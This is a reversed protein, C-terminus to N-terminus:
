GDGSSNGCPGLGPRPQDQGCVHREHRWGGHTGNGSRKGLVGQHIRLKLAPTPMRDPKAALEIGFQDRKRTVFAGFAQQRAIWREAQRHVIRPNEGINVRWFVQGLYTCGDFKRGSRTM